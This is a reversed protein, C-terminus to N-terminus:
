EKVIFEDMKAFLSDPWEEATLFMEKEEPTLGEKIVPPLSEYAELRVKEQKKDM